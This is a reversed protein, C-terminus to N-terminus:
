ITLNNKCVQSGTRVSPVMATRRQIFPRLSTLAHRQEVLRREDVGTVAQRGIATYMNSCSCVEYTLLRKM